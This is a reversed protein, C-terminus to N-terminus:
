TGGQVTSGSRHSWVATIEGDAVAVTRDALITQGETDVVQVGTILLDVPDADASGGCATALVSLLLVPICSRTTQSM